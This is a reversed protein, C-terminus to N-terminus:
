AAEQKPLRPGFVIVDTGDIRLEASTATFGECDFERCVGGRAEVDLLDIATAEHLCISVYGPAGAERLMAVAARVKELDIM